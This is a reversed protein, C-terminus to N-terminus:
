PGALWDQVADIAALNRALEIGDATALEVDAAPIDLSAVWAPASGTVAYDAFPQGHPYGAAEGYIAGLETSIASGACEGTFVGNAASHYFLSAAPRIQQILAGLARTEPESFPTAGADVPGQGFVADASWACGWNRNLDVGRGNFRGALAAGRSAGDVNLTPVIVLTVWPRVRAPDEQYHRALAEALDATNREYGMHIGGVLLLTAPGEGIRYGILPRGEGSAGFQFHAPLATPRAAITLPTATATASPRPPETATPPPSPSPSPQPTITAAPATTVSPLVALTPLVFPEPPRTQCGAVSVLLICLGAITAPARGLITV